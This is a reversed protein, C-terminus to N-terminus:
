PLVRPHERRLPHVSPRHDPDWGESRHEPHAPHQKGSDRRERQDEAPETATFESQRDSQDTDSTQDCEAARDVLGEGSGLLEPHRAGSLQGPDAVDSGSENRHFQVASRMAETQFWALLSLQHHGVRPAGSATDLVPKRDLCVETPRGPRCDDAQAERGSEPTGHATSQSPTMRIRQSRRGPRDHARPRALGPLRPLTPLRRLGPRAPGAPLM